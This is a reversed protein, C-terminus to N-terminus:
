ITQIFWHFFSTCYFAFCLSCSVMESSANSMYRQTHTYVQAIKDKTKNIDTLEMPNILNGKCHSVVDNLTKVIM